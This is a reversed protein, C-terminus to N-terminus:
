RVTPVHSVRGSRIFADLASRQVRVHKGLKIYDIRREAILRRVFREGTCLYDGAQSPTLLEDTGAYPIGITGDAVAQPDMSPRHGPGGRNKEQGGALLGPRLSSDRQERGNGWSPAVPAEGSFWQLRVITEDACTTNTGLVELASDGRKTSFSSRIGSARRRDDDQDNM